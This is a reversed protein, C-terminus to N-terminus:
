TATYGAAADSASVFLHLEQGRQQISLRPPYVIDGLDAYAEPPFIVPHGGIRFNIRKIVLPPRQGDAGWWSKVAGREAALEQFPVEEVLFEFADDVKADYTERPALNGYLRTVGWGDSIRIPEKDRSVGTSTLALSLIIAVLQRM